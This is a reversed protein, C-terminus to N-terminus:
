RFTKGPTAERRDDAPRTPGRGWWRTDMAPM